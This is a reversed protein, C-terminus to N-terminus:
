SLPPAFPNIFIRLGGGLYAASGPNAVRRIVVLSVMRINPVRVWIFSVDDIGTELTRAVSSLILQLRFTAACRVM